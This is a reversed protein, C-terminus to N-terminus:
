PTTPRQDRAVVGPDNTPTSSSNDAMVDLEGYRGVDPTQPPPEDYADVTTMRRTLVMADDTADNGGVKELLRIKQQMAANEADFNGAIVVVFISVVIVGSLM